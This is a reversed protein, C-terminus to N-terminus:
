TPSVTLWNLRRPGLNTEELMIGNKSEEEQGLVCEVGCNLMVLEVIRCWNGCQVAPELPITITTQPLYACAQVAHFCRHARMFKWVSRDQHKRQLLSQKM